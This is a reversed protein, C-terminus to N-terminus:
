GLRAKGGGARSWSGPCVWARGPVAGAAKGWAWVGSSGRGFRLEFPVDELFGEEIGQPLFWKGM